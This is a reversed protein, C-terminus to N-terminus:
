LSPYKLSCIFSLFSGFYTSPIVKASPPKMSLNAAVGPPMKPSFNNKGSSSCFHILLCAFFNQASTGIINSTSGARLAVRIIPAVELIKPRDIDSTFPM